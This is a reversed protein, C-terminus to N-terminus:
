KLFIIGSIELIAYFIYVYGLDGDHLNIHLNELLIQM